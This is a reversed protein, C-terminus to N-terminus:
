KNGSYACQWLIEGAVSQLEPFLTLKSVGLIQLDEFFRGLNARDLVICALKLKKFSDEQVSLEDISKPNTGHVTFVGQQATIRPNSRAPLIAIPFENTSPDNGDTWNVEKPNGIKVMSPTFYYEKIISGPSFPRDEGTSSDNLTGADMLWVTPSNEDYIPTAPSKKLEEEIEKKSKVFISKEIAFYLAALASETWDLLRTKLNYHQAMYYWDLDDDSLPSTMYARAHIKFREFLDEEDFDREMSDERYIGPLLKSKRKSVGRFWIEQRDTEDCRWGKIIEKVKEVFEGFDSVTKEEM